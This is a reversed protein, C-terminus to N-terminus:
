DDCGGYALGALAAAQAHNLGFRHMLRTIRLVDRLTM